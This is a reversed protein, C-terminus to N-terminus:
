TGYEFRFFQEILNRNPVSRGPLIGYGNMRLMINGNEQGRVDIRVTQLVADRQGFFIRRCRDGGPLFKTRDLDQYVAGDGRFNREDSGHVDGVRKPGM